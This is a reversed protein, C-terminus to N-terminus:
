GRHTAKLNDLDVLQLVPHKPRLVGQHM